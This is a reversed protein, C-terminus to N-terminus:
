VIKNNAEKLKSKLIKIKEQLIRTDTRENSDSRKEGNRRNSDDRKEEGRRNTENRKQM